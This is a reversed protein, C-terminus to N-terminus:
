NSPLDGGSTAPSAKGVDAGDAATPNLTSTIATSIRNFVRIDLLKIQALGEDGPAFMPTGDANAVAAAVLKMMAEGTVKSAVGGTGDAANGDVVMDMVTGASLPRLYVVGGALEPISLETLTPPATLDALSLVRPVSTTPQKAM